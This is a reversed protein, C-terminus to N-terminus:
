ISLHLYKRIEGIFYLSGFAITKEGAAEVTGNDLFPAFVESFKEHNEAAVGRSNIYEALREGQLARSSEPTVATVDVALPLILDAMQEYDKDALVGMIFHFKEGPYLERLSRVLAKVGHGNHAGDIMLYPYKSVIEMRGPWVAGAIGRHLAEETVPYGLEQLERAALVATMANEKQFIGQMKMEYPTEGPYAFGSGLSQIQEAEVKRFPIKLKRCHEILVEEALPEQSELVARTGEKLIGSKEKAIQALTNGLVATHDYGIKTIVGVLTVDIANTSDLRGGLGTELVVIQCGQEKFYLMAMTLCYDFMTPCVDLELSLLQEGLRAADEKPIQKGDVQIRETFEVLHPSTFMGTKIGAETLVARLFAATSGKGNTGAIHVFALEKQPEGVAALMKKSIVVGPLNGFRRKNEIIDIIERYEM